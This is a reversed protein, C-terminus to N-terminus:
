QRFFTCKTSTLWKLLRGLFLTTLNVSRRSMVMTTSQSTFGCILCILHCGLVEKAGVPELAAVGSSAVLHFQFPSFIWIFLSQELQTDFGRGGVHM